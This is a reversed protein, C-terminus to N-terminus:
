LKHNAVNSVSYYIMVVGSSLLAGGIIDSLWHVGCVTRGVVMFVSFAILLASVSKKLFSNRIRSRLQMVTTPMVTMVLLTTSSPFSAELFGNILVPRYNVVYSEFYLYAAIVALYFGGLVLISYDVALIRKRRIWQVLGLIAFALAFGFPILGLWDTIVYLTMHVGTLKHFAGNLTAFGVMSERPGIPRVDVRAIAHTWLAFAALLAFGIIAYNKPEKKM